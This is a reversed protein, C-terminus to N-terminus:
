NSKRYIKDTIRSLSIKSSNRLVNGIESQSFDLTLQNALRIESSLQKALMLLGSKNKFYKQAMKM